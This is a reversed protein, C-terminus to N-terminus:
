QNISMTHHERRKKKRKKSKKSKIRKKKGKKPMPQYKPSPEVVYKRRRKIGFYVCLACLSIAM